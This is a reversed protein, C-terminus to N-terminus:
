NKDRNKKERRIIKKRVDGMLIIAAKRYAQAIRSSQRFTFDSWIHSLAYKVVYKVIEGGEYDTFTCEAEVVAVKQFFINSNGPYLWLTKVLLNVEAGSGDNVGVMGISNATSNFYKEFAPEYFKKRADFWKSRIKDGKKSNNAYKGLKRQLYEEETENEEVIMGSYDYTISFHKKGQLALPDGSIIEAHPWVYEKKQGISFNSFLLFLFGLLISNLQLVKM